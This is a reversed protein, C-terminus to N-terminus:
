TKKSYELKLFSIFLSVADLGGLEAYRLLSARADFPLNVIFRWTKGNIEAVIQADEQKENLIEDDTIENIKFHKKLGQSWYLQRKGRFALAYETFLASYKQQQQKDTTDALRLFDFMTLSQNKGNKIHSKTLEPAAGWKQEHGFKALYDSPSYVIKIDVGRKKSPSGLGFKNCAKLWCDFILDKIKGLPLSDQNFFLLEHTHVHFGNKDSYTVELSRILGQYNNDKLICKYVRQNRLYKLAKPLAEMTDALKTNIKHSHTLTLMLVMNGDKTHQEQAHIIEQARTQTIQAACVPCTWVSGCRHLNGYYCTDSSSGKLIKVTGKEVMSRLCSTVRFLPKKDKKIPYLINSSIKQLKYRDSRASGIGGDITGNDTITEPKPKPKTHVSKTTYVLIKEAKQPEKTQEVSQTNKACHPIYSTNFNSLNKDQATQNLYYNPKIIDM